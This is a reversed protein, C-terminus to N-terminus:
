GNVKKLGQQAETYNPFIDLAKSFFEAAKTKDGRDQYVLARSYYSLAETPVTRAKVASAQTSTLQPLKTGEMLKLSVNQLIRFMDDRKNDKPDSTVTKMIEGTEVDVLRADIRFRGYFDAFSGMIMYKAGVLKGIKAATANDVRGDKGLDQESIMSQINERDVLRLNPNQALESIMMAALGKQLAAFDEKDKGYSGADTYPLVAIGPRSDQARLAPVLALSTLVLSLLMRRRM